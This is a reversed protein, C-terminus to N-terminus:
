EIEDISEATQFTRVRSTGILEQEYSVKATRRAPLTFEEQSTVVKEFQMQGDQYGRVILNDTDEATVRALVPAYPARVMNFPGRWLYCMKSADDGDFQYITQGDPIPATSPEPLYPTTPEDNDDLALYLNDTVPDAHAASAHFALEILGFGDPKFDLAYGLAM